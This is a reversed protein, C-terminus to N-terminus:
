HVEDDSMLKTRIDIVGNSSVRMQIEGRLDTRLAFSGYRKLREVVDPHPHRYMNNVGASIVSALPKWAELWAESTSTKSGHHGVKLVDLPRTTNGATIQETQDTLIQQEAQEDADGTFLFRAQNMRMEVVLSEHNQNEVVPLAEQERGQRGMNMFLFETYRDAHYISGGDAQYVPIEQKIATTLLQEFSKSEALTGNFVISKVPIEDLVAQLGGSHDQHNHSIMVMDLSHIGRKKLLPVVVKEGVEFPNSREKWADKEKRFNTTGGADILIHKGEPTSVLISDGQGVDLFQVWGDGQRGPGHYGSYLLFLFLCALLTVMASSGLKETHHVLKHFGMSRLKNTVPHLSFSHLRKPMDGRSLPVTEDFNVGNELTAGKKNSVIHLLLYLVIFYGHIWWLTPSPWITLFSPYSNMWEVISFTFANLWEILIAIWRACTPWIMGLIVSIMGMPLVVLSILPVLLLNAFLSLLSFQNFYYITLPFSVLQAALTVGVTGAMWRPLFSLFSMLKPVFVMLGATILFSLQFSINVLFYPDWLLMILATFSLIHLGDKLLGRRAAYLGIMGMIGARVVSPSAGTLLVYLPLLFIVATLSSERTFRCASFIFLLSGVYVAVHMGSIALIHTLGLRSFEGFTDADLDGKEGIILGKMYGAHVGSFLQNIHGGIFERAQDNWRFLHSWTWEEPEAVEIQDLGRVKLLWHIEKTRLFQQYDFGQFNRAIGPKELQGVISAVDGRRWHLAAQQEEKTMLKVQVQVKEKLDDYTDMDKILFEFDARDGDVKVPSLIVGEALIAITEDEEKMDTVLNSLASVNRADNWEWYGSSMFLSLVMSCIFIAGARRWYLVVALLLSIGVITYMLEFGSYMCATGSGLVWCCTFVLLPRHTM